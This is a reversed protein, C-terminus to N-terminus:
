WEINDLERAAREDEIYKRAMSEIVDWPIVEEDGEDAQLDLDQHCPGSISPRKLNYKPHLSAIALKEADLAEARTEFHKITITSIEEFWHSSKHRAQRSLFTSSMGVYLLIGDKDYHFYVQGKKKKSRM